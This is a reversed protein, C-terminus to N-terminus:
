LWALETWDGPPWVIGCLLFSSALWLTFICPCEPEMCSWHWNNASQTDGLLPNNPSWWSSWPHKGWHDLLVYTKVMLAKSRQPQFRKKELTKLLIFSWTLSKHPSPMFQTDFFNFCSIQIKDQSPKASLIRQKCESVQTARGQALALPHPRLQKIPLTCFRPYSAGGQNERQTEHNLWAIRM